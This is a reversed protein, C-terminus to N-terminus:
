VPTLLWIKMNAALRYWALHLVAHLPERRWCNGKYTRIPLDWPNESNSTHTAVTLLM